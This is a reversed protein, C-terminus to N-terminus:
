PQVPNVETTNLALFQLPRPSHSLSAVFREDKAIPSPTSDIGILKHRFKVPMLETFIGLETVVIPLLAKEPQVPKRETDM